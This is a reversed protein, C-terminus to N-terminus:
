DALISTCVASYRMATEEPTSRVMDWWLDYLGIDILKELSPNHREDDVIFSNSNRSSSTRFKCVQICQGETRPTILYLRELGSLIQDESIM